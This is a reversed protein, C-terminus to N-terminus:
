SCCKPHRGQKSPLMTRSLSECPASQSLMCTQQWTAVGATTRWTLCIDDPKIAAQGRSPTITPQIHPPARTHLCGMPSARVQPAM